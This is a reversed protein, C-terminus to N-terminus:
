RAAKWLQEHRARYAEAFRPSVKSGKPPSLILVAEHNKEWAAKSWNASGTFVVDDILAFKHHLQKRGSRRLNEGLGELSAVLAKASADKRQTLNRYQIADLVVRVRVRGRRHQALIAKALEPDNFVFMGVLLRKRAGRIAALLRKRARAGRPGPTNFEIAIRAQELGTVDPPSTKPLRKRLRFKGVAEFHKRVQAVVRPDRVVALDNWKAQNGLHSWNKSGTVVTHDDILILKIHMRGGPVTVRTLKSLLAKPLPKKAKRQQHEDVLLRLDFEPTKAKAELVELLAPDSLTYAFLWLRHKAGKALELVAALDDKGQGAMLVEVEGGSATPLLSLLLFSSLLLSRM